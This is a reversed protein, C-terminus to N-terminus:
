IFKNLEKVFHLNYFNKNVKKKNLKSSKQKLKIEFGYDNFISNIFGMFSRISKIQPLKKSLGFLPHSKSPNTFLECESLVLNMNKEFTEKDIIKKDFVDIYGIKNVIEKIMKNKMIVNNKDYDSKDDDVVKDNTLQRLNLLQQTKGYYDKIMKNKVKKETNELKWIKVFMYREILIKEEHTAKNINQKQLINNIKTTNIDIANLVEEMLINEKKIEQNNIKGDICEYTYGKKDFLKNLYSVFINKSKNSEEQINYCLIKNYLDFEKMKIMKNTNQDLITKTFLKGTEIIYDKIEDYKYYSINKKYPLNNLYINVENSKIQRVRNMMQLLGRQSTSKISLIIYMCDYHAIDFNVGSEICPSYILLRGTKWLTNVDKLEEKLIDDSNSCHLICEYKDKYMDYYHLGIKSSMTCIIVNKGKILDDDIKKEYRKRDNDYIFHKIDKKCENELIISNGFFNIYDYSRNDFDGDLVLLKKSNFIIDRMLNFTPEKERITVSRFHNLVSEIEDIIVLDFEPIDNMDNDNVELKQLSEIQCIIRDANYFGDLYSRFKYEKFNGYIDNTLSQRYTVILIRKFNLEEFIKKLIQTKGSNYCSKLSLTKINLDNYWKMINKCVIDNNNTIKDDKKDLLYVKNFKISDYSPLDNSSEIQIYLEPNDIKAIYKLTGIGTNYKRKSIINWVNICDQEDIYSLSLKSWEHFLNFGDKSSNCNYICICIQLWDAYTDKRNKDLIDLYRKIYNCSYNKLLTNDVTDKNNETYKNKSKTVELKNPIIININFVNDKPINKLLCDMFLEKDNKYNYNITRDLELNINKKVKSNWLLRFCGKRYINPDLIKNDILHSKITSVFYRMSYIDDFIINQFIVHSSLKTSNSSKLIIIKPVIEEKYFLKLKDLLLEISEDIITDLYNQKSKDTKCSEPIQELKIDIDIFLKIQQEKEYTEYLHFIKQNSLEYVTNYDLAYYNYIFKTENDKKDIYVKDEAFCHLNTMYQEKIHESITNWNNSYIFHLNQLFSKERCITSPNAQSDSELIITQRGSM